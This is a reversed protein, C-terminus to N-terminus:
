NARAMRYRKNPRGCIQILTPLYDAKLQLSNVEQRTSELKTERKRGNGADSNIVKARTISFRRHSKAAVM